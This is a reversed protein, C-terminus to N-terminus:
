FVDKRKMANALLWGLFGYFLCSPLTVVGLTMVEIGGSDDGGPSFPLLGLRGFVMITPLHVFLAVAVLVSGLSNVKAAGVILSSVGLLASWILPVLFCVLFYRLPQGCSRFWGILKSSAMPM